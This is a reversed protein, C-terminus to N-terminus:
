HKVVRAMVFDVLEINDLRRCCTGQEVVFWDITHIQENSLLRQDRVM